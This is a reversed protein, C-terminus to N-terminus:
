SRTKKVKKKASGIKAGKLNNINKEILPRMLEKDEKKATSFGGRIIHRGEGLKELRGM